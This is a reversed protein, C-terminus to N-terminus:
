IARDIRTSLQILSESSKVGTIAGIADLTTDLAETTPASLLLILDFRGSTTHAEEVEPMIKLRSMVGPMTRPEIQLLVTAKIRRARAIEGLRVTYGAIIGSVELRELRAQVTSRALKLKKAMVAVPIRANGALMGIMQKDTEDM